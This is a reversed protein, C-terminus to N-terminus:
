NESRGCTKGTKITTTQTTCSGIWLRQATTETPRRWDPITKPTRKYVAVSRFVRLGSVKDFPAWNPNTQYKRTILNLTHMKWCSYRLLPATNKEAILNLLAHHQNMGKSTINVNIVRKRHRRGAKENYYVCNSGLLLFENINCEKM